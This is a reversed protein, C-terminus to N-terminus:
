IEFEKHTPMWTNDQILRFTRVSAFSSIKMCAKIGHKEVDLIVATEIASPTCDSKNHTAVFQSIEAMAIGTMTAEPNNIGNYLKRIDIIEWGISGNLTITDGDKTTVTQIPLQAYRFRINQIFVSDIIPVKLYIGRNLMTEFKGMRVRIGSQWPLVIVWWKFISSIYNALEKIWSM